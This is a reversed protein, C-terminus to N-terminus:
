SDVNLRVRMENLFSYHEQEAEKTHLGNFRSRMLKNTDSGINAGAHNEGGLDMIQHNQTSPLDASNSCKAHSYGVEMQHQIREVHDGLDSNLNSDTPHQLKPTYTGPPSQSIQTSNERHFTPQKLASM